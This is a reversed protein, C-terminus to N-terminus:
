DDPFTIFRTVDNPFGGFASIDFELSSRRSRFPLLDVCEYKRSFPVSSDKNRAEARLRRGEKGDSVSNSLCIDYRDYNTDPLSSDSSPLVLVFIVAGHDVDRSM